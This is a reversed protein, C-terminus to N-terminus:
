HSGAYAHQRGFPCPTNLLLWKNFQVQVEVQLPVYRFMQHIQRPTSRSVKSKTSVLSPKTSRLKELRRSRKAPNRSWVRPSGVTTKLVVRPAEPCGSLAGLDWSAILSTWQLAPSISSLPPSSLPGSSLQLSRHSTWSITIYM